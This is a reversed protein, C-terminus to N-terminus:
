YRVHWVNKLFEIIAVKRETKSIAFRKNPKRQSLGHEKM